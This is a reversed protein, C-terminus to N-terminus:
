GKRCCATAQLSGGTATGNWGAPASQTSSVSKTEDNPFIHTQAVIRRVEAHFESEEKWTRSVLPAIVSYRALAWHM